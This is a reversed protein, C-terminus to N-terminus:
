KSNTIQRYIHEATLLESCTVISGVIVGLMGHSNINQGTQLVNPIRTKHPVRNAIGCNVDKAVGYM